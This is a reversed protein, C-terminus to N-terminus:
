RSVPDLRRQLQRFLEAGQGLLPAQLQDRVDRGAHHPIATVQALDESAQVGERSPADIWNLKTIPSKM